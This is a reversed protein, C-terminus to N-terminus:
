SDLGEIPLSLALGGAGDTACAIECALCERCAGRKVLDAPKALAPVGNELMLIGDPCAAACPRAQCVSCVEPNVCIQGTLTEYTIM